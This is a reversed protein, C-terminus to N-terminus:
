WDFRPGDARLEHSLGKRESGVDARKMSKREQAGGGGRRLRRVDHVIAWASLVLGSWLAFSVVFTLVALNAIGSTSDNSVFVGGVSSVGLRDRVPTKSATEIGSLYSSVAVRTASALSVAERSTPAQATVAIEPLATDENIIVRYRANQVVVQSARKEGDPEEDFVSQYVDLPGDVAIQDRAIGSNAAILNRIRPSGMQDALAIAQNISQQPVDSLQTDVLGGNPGVYLQMRAVAYGLSSGRIAPPFFSVSAVSCLAVLASVPIGVVLLTRRSLILKAIGARM